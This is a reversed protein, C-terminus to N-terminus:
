GGARPSWMEYFPVTMWLCEAEDIAALQGSSDYHYAEEGEEAGSYDTRLPRGHEDNTTTAVTQGGLNVVIQRGRYDVTEIEDGAHLGPGPESRRLVVPRGAVDFGAEHLRGDNALRDDALELPCAWMREHILPEARHGMWSPAIRVWRVVEVTGM